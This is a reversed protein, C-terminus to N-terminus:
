RVEIAEPVPTGAAPKERGLFVIAVGIAIALIILAMMNAKSGLGSGRRKTRQVNMGGPPYAPQLPDSPNNTTRM